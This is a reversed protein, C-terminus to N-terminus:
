AVHRMLGREGSSALETVRSTYFLDLIHVSSWGIPLTAECCTRRLRAINQDVGRGVQYGGMLRLKFEATHGVIRSTRVHRGVLLLERLLMGRHLELPLQDM